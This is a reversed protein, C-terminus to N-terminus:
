YSAYEFTVDIGNTSPFAETNYIYGEESNTADTLRLWGSGAADTGNSATLYADDGLSWEGPDSLTANQFSETVPFPSTAWASPAFAAVAGCTLIAAGLIPAVRLRARLVRRLCPYM